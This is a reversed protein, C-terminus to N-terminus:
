LALGKYERWSEICEIARGDEFRTRYMLRSFCGYIPHYNWNDAVVRIETGKAKKM